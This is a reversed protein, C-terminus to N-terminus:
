DRQSDRSAMRTRVILAYVAVPLWLFLVWGTSGFREFEPCPLGSTLPDGCDNRHYISGAAYSFAIITLTTMSIVTLVADILVALLVHVSEFVAFWFCAVFAVGLVSLVMSAILFPYVFGLLNM